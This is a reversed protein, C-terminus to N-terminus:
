RPEANRSVDLVTKTGKRSDVPLVHRLSKPFKGKHTDDEGAGSWSSGVDLGLSQTKPHIGKVRRCVRLGRSGNM